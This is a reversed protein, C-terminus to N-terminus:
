KTVSVHYGLNRWLHEFTKLLGQARFDQEWARVDLSGSKAIMQLVDHNDLPARTKMKKLHVLNSSLRCDGVNADILALCLDYAAFVQEKAPQIISAAFIQEAHQMTPECFCQQIKALPPILATISTRRGDDWTSVNRYFYWVMSCYHQKMDRGPGRPDDHFLNKIERHWSREKTRPDLDKLDVSIAAILTKTFAERAPAMNSMEKDFDVSRYFVRDGEDYECQTWRPRFLQERLKCLEFYVHIKQKFDDKTLTRVNYVAHSGRRPTTLINVEESNAFNREDEIEAERFKYRSAQFERKVFDIRALRGENEWLQVEDPPGCWRPRRRPIM